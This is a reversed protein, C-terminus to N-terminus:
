VIQACREGIDVATHADQHPLILRELRFHALLQIGRNVIVRVPEDVHRFIQQCGCLQFSVPGLQFGSGFQQLIQKLTSDPLQVPPCPVM